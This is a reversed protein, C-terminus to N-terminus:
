APEPFHQAPEESPANRLKMGIRHMLLEAASRPDYDKPDRLLNHIDTLFIPTSLKQTLNAHLQRYSYTNQGMYHILCGAVLEDDLDLERLALWLDLLDRGKRRAYLARLKTAILEEVRFTRIQASGSWWPSEINYPLLVHPRYPDSERVNIEIKISIRGGDNSQPNAEFWVRAMDSDRSPFRRRTEDLGIDAAIRRLATLCDGIRPEQSTRTYDLDESYRRPRPLHLKHLCTGGRFALENALLDDNAIEILLRSLIPGARDPKRRAV